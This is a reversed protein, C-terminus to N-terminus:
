VSLDVRHLSTIISDRLFRSVVNGAIAANVSVRASAADVQELASACPSCFHEEPSVIPLTWVTRWRQLSHHQAAQM